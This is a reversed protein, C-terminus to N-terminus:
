AREASVTRWRESVIRSRGNRRDVDIALHVNPRTRRHYTPSADLQVRWRGPAPSAGAFRPLRTTVNGCPQELVAAERTAATAGGPRVRHVYLREGVTFGHGVLRQAEDPARGIGSGREVRFVTQKSDVQAVPEGTVYDTAFFRLRTETSGSISHEESVFTTGANGQGDTETVGIAVFPALPKSFDPVFAGRYELAVFSNPDFGELHLNVFEGPRFCAREISLTPAASASSPFAAVAM